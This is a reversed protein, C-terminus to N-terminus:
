CKCDNRYVGQDYKQHTLIFRVYIKQWEYNIKVILRFKNGGINFITCIGALDAHPFTKRTDSIDKWVAKQVLKYWRRLPLEADKQNEWFERLQKKAIIRM